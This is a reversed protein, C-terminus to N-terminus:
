VPQNFLNNTTNVQPQINIHLKAPICHRAVVRDLADLHQQGQDLFDTHNLFEKKLGDLKSKLKTEPDETNSAALINDGATTPPGIFQTLISMNTWEEEFKLDFTGKPPPLPLKSRVPPKDEKDDGSQEHQQQLQNSTIM